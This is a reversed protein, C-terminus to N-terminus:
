WMVRGRRGRSSDTCSRPARGRRGTSRWGASPAPWPARARRAVGTDPGGMEGHHFALDSGIRLVFRVARMEDAPASGDFRGDGDRVVLRKRVRDPGHEIRNERDSLAHSNWRAFDCADGEPCDNRWRAVLQEIQDVFMMIATREVPRFCQSPGLSLNLETMEANFRFFRSVKLTQGRRDEVGIRAESRRRVGDDATRTRLRAQPRM